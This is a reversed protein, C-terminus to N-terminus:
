RFDGPMNWEYDTFIAVLARAVAGEDCRGEARAAALVAVLRDGKAYQDVALCGDILGIPPKQGTEFAYVAEGIVAERLSGLQYSFRIPTVQGDLSVDLGDLICRGSSDLRDALLVKIAVHRPLGSREPWFETGTYPACGRRERVQVIGGYQRRVALPGPVSWQAPADSAETAVYRPTEDDQRYLVATGGAEGVIAVVRQLAVLGGDTRANNFHYYNDAVVQSDCVKQVRSTYTFQPSLDVAVSPLQAILADVRRKLEGEPRWEGFEYSYTELCADRDRFSMAWDRENDYDIQIFTGDPWNARTLNRYENYEYTYESGWHNRNWVLMDGDYRYESLIQTGLTVSAVHPTAGESFNLDLQDSNSRITWKRAGRVITVSRGDATQYETLNGFRDFRKGDGAWHAGQATVVLVDGSVSVFRGRPLVAGDLGANIGLERALDFIRESMSVRADDDLPGIAGRREAALIRQNFAGATDAGGAHEATFVVEMGDGCHAMVITEPGYARLSTELESCWGFGFIGNFLTRSRYSRVIGIGTRSADVDYWSNSYSGSNSDVIAGAPRSVLLALMAVFVLWAFSSSRCRAASRSMISM